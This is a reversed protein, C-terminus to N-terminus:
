AGIIEIGARVRVSDKYSTVLGTTFLFLLIIGVIILVKKKM